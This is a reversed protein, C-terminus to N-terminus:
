MRFIIAVAICIFLIRGNDTDADVKLNIFNQNLYKSVNSDSFTNADLMSCPGWWDTYFYLMTKQDRASNLFDSVNKNSWNINDSNCSLIFLVFFLLLKKM